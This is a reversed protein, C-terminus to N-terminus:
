MGELYQKAKRAVVIEENTPIVMVKVTSADTSIVGEKGRANNREKDLHIGLFEMGTCIRERVKVGNEGIGGAFAVVDLGEMACAFSGIYKKISYCYAEICLRARENGEEAAEEIDRVDNSVGSLGLLGSEKTLLQKVEELSYGMYEMLYIPIFPDIDGCRNNNPIGSQLSFGMTTDVSHGNKVACLSGSGGLHCTVIRLDSRGLLESVRISVYEHSAGHFGYKRIGHERCLEYPIGYLYAEPPITMHFGSEFSGILPVGPIIEMFQRIANIYPPNHAPAISNYEEMAKLVDDSLLQVGTIGKAHVVKFGVSSIEKLSEIVGQGSRILTKIMLDVGTKYDPISADKTFKLGKVDKHFYVSSDSGVREMRGWALSKEDDMDLLRYKISTSGVNCVLIKM